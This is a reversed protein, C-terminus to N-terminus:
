LRGEAKATAIEEETLFRKMGARLKEVRQLIESVETARDQRAGGLAKEMLALMEQNVSRRNALAQRKLLDSLADPVKRVTLTKM